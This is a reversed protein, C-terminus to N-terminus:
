PQDGLSYLALDVDRASWTRGHHEATPALGEVVKMFKPTWGLSLKEARPLASQEPRLVPEAVHPASLITQM